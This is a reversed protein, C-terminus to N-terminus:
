LEVSVADSCFLLPRRSTAGCMVVCLAPDSVTALLVAQAWAPHCTSSLIEGRGDSMPLAMGVLLEYKGREFIVVEPLKQLALALNEDLALM